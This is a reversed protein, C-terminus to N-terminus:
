KRWSVGFAARVDNQSNAANNPLNTHVYDLEIVRIGFGNKIAVDVGGGVQMSFAGASTQVSNTGPFTSDFAHAGGVLWEGFVETGHKKTLKETYRSTNLTYRPGVMFAVKGLGVNSQINSAHEGTLNV